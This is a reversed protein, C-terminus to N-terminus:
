QIKRNALFIFCVYSSVLPAKFCGFFSVLNSNSFWFFSPLLVSSSFQVKLAIFLFVDCPGPLLCQPFALNILPFRLPLLLLFVLLWRFESQFSYQFISCWTERLNKQNWRCTEPRKWHQRWKDKESEADGGCGFGFGEGIM